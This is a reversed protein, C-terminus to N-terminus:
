RTVVSFKTFVTEKRVRKINRSDAFKLLIGM